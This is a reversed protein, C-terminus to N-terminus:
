FPSDLAGQSGGRSGGSSTVEYTAMDSSLTYNRLEFYYIIEISFTNRLVFSAMYTFGIFSIDMNEAICKLLKINYFM